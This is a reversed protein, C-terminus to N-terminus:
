YGELYRAPDYGRFGRCAYVYWHKVPGDFGPRYLTIQPLPTLSDFLTRAVAVARENEDDLCLIANKGVLLDPRTWVLYEDRRSNLYLAQTQPQGPLYFALESNVRYNIGSVFVPKGEKGLGDRASQIAAAISEWGYTENLKQAAAAPIPRGFLTLLGPFFAIASIVGSLATASVAFARGPLRKGDWLSVFYVAVSALATLQMPAPWNIEMKSKLSVILCLVLIPAAFSVLFRAADAPIGQNAPRRALRFLAILEAVFLLPGAAFCQGGLFDGFWHFPPADHRRSGLTITHLFGMWGHAANWQIVPVFLLLAVGFALYPHPTALSRRYRPSWLLFVLVGPAFLLMTLKCLIGLGTLVGVVYWGVTRADQLTRTLAYLAAAWFFVQPGDYTALVSGAAILPAVSLLILSTLAIRANGSWRSVTLFVLWGTGAALLITPLRIGFPTSGFLATGARILFAIGPGQDYYSSALHRSWQWYYTEDEAMGLRAAYVLRFATLLALLLLATTAGAAPDRRGSLEPPPADATV